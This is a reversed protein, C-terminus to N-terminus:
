ARVAKEWVVNQQNNLFRKFSALASYNMMSFYYLVYLVKVKKGMKEYYFGLIAMSYFLIQAIFSLLYFQNQKILIANIALVLAFPM